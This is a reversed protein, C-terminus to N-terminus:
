VHSNILAFLESKKKKQIIWHGPFVSYLVNFQYFGVNYPYKIWLWQRNRTGIKGNLPVIEGPKKQFVHNPGSVTVSIFIVLM